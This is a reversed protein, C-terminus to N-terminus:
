HAHLMPRMFTQEKIAIKRQNSQIEINSQIESQNSLVSDSVLGTGFTTVTTLGPLGVPVYM